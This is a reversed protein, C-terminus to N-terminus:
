ALERHTFANGVFNDPVSTLTLVKQEKDFGLKGETSKKDGNCNHFCHTAETIFHIRVFTNPSCHEGIQMEILVLASPAWLCVDEVLFGGWLSKTWITHYKQIFLISVGREYHDDTLPTNWCPKCSSLLVSLFPKSAAARLSFAPSDVALNPNTSGNGEM